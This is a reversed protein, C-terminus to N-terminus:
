PSPSLRTSSCGHERAAGPALAGRGAQGLASWRGPLGRRKIKSVLLARQSGPPLTVEM